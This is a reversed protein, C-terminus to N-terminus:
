LPETCRVVLPDPPTGPIVFLRLRVDRYGNRTGIVTYAGPKLNLERRTFAGLLGVRYVVVDTTADSELVM